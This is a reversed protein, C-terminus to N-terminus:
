KKRGGLAIQMTQDHATRSPGPQTAPAPRSRAHPPAPTGAAGTASPTRRGARAGRRRKKKEQACAHVALRLDAGRHDAPRLTAWTIM